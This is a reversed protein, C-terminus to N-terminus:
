ETKLGTIASLEKESKPKAPQKELSIPIIKGRYSELNIKDLEGNKLVAVSGDKYETFIKIGKVKLLVFHEAFDWKYYYVLTNKGEYTVFVKEEITDNTSKISFQPIMPVALSDKMVGDYNFIGLKKLNMGKFFGEPMQNYVPTFFGEMEVNSEKRNNVAGSGWLASSDKNNRNNFFSFDYIASSYKKWTNKKPDYVFSRLSDLNRRTKMRVQITKDERLEV